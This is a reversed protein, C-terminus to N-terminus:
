QDPPYYDGPLNAQILQHFGVLKGVAVQFTSKLTDAFFAEWPPAPCLQRIKAILEGSDM